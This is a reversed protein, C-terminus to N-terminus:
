ITRLLIGRRNRIETKGKDTEILVDEGYFRASLAGSKVITRQVLGREKLLEVRGDRFTAIILDQEDNFFATVVDKCIVPSLVLGKNNVINIRGNVVKIIKQMAISQYIYIINEKLNM